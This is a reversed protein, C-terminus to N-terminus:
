RSGPKWDPNIAQGDVSTLRKQGSGDANMVYIEYHGDRLSSFAIRCGDPSWKPEEDDALNNTLRILGSGDTKMSYIDFNGERKSQFVIRSGDPSWNPWWDEAGHDTIKVGRSADKDMVWIDGGGDVYDFYAIRSGAPSWDAGQGDMNGIRRANSGDAQMTWIESSWVPTMRSRTFLIQGGDASWSLCWDLADPDNTLQQPNSGDANIIFLSWKKESCHNYYAIRTADPSWSPGLPRGALDAIQKNGSGDANMLFIKNTNDPYTVSYAIVGGGRGDLPTQDPSGGTSANESISM